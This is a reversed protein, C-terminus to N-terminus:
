QLTLYTFNFPEPPKCVQAAVQHNAGGKIVGITWNFRGGPYRGLGLQYICRTVCNKLQPQDEDAWAISGIGQGPPDLLVNFHEDQELARGFTWTLEATENQNYHQGIHPAILKLTTCIDPTPTITPTSTATRTPRPARTATQSQTLSLTVTITPAPQTPSATATPLKTPTATNTATPLSTPTDAIAIEAPTATSAATPIEIPSFPNLLSAPAVFVISYYVLCVGASILILAALRNYIQDRKM